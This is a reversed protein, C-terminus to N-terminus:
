PRTECALRQRLAKQGEAESLLGSRVWSNIVTDRSQRILTTNKCFQVEAWYWYPPFALMVEALEGPSLDDLKKTLLAHCADRPGWIGAMFHTTELEYALLAEKTLLGHIRAVALHTTEANATSGLHGALNSAFLLECAGDGPLSEGRYSFALRKWWAFSEERPSELYGPCGMALLYGSVLLRPLTALDPKLFEVPVPELDPIPNRYARRESEIESKVMKQIEFETELPPMRRTTQVYIFPVFVLTVATLFLVLWLLIRM